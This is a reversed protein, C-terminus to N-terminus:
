KSDRKTNKRVEGRKDLTVERERERERDNMGDKWSGSDFWKGCINKM